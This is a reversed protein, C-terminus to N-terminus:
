FCVYDAVKTLSTAHIQSFPPPTLFDSIKASMMYPLGRICLSDLRVSVTKFLLLVLFLLTRDNLSLGLFGNLRRTPIIDNFKITTVHFNLPSELPVSKLEM